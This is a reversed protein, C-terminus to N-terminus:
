MDFEEKENCHIQQMLNSFTETETAGVIFTLAISAVVMLLIGGILLFRGM